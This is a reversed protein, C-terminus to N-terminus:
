ATRERTYAPHGSSDAVRFAGEHAGGVAPHVVRRPGEFASEMTEFARASASEDSRSEHRCRGGTNPKAINLGVFLEGVGSV